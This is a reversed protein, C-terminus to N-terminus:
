SQSTKSATKLQRADFVFEQSAKETKITNVTLTQLGDIISSYDNSLYALAKISSSSNWMLETQWQTILLDVSSPYNPPLM